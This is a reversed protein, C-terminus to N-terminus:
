SRQIFKEWIIKKNGSEDLDEENSEIHEKYARAYEDPTMYAQFLTDITQINVKVNVKKNKFYNDAVLLDVHTTRKDEFNKPGFPMIYTIEIDENLESIAKTLEYCVIGVGGAFFLHFNGM